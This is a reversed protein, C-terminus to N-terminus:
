NIKAKGITPYINYIHINGEFDMLVIQHTKKNELTVEGTNNSWIYKEEDYNITTNFPSSPLTVEYSITKDEYYEKLELDKITISPTTNLDIGYKEILTIKAYGNGNNGTMTTAGDYTPMAKNGAITETEELFYRESANYGEPVNKASDTTWVFGSGGGGSATTKVAPYMGGYWGGGGGACGWTQNVFQKNESNASFGYGFAWGTTQTGSAGYSSDFTYGSLGGGAGGREGDMSGGGGGGAVIIRSLLSETDNWKGNILRIDTAGGGGGTPNRGDTSFKQGSGGGNWAEKSVAPPIGTWYGEEGVYIYLKEGKKLKINGKSYGGLGAIGMESNQHSGGGRAGWVELKYEGTYPVIFEQYNGTYNYTYEEAKLNYNNIFTIIITLLLILFLKKVKFMCVCKGIKKYYKIM